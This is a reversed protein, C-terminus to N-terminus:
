NSKANDNLINLGDVSRSKQPHCLMGSHVGSWRFCGWITVGGGGAQVNLVLCSPRKVDDVERRVRFHGDGQCLIFKSENSQM